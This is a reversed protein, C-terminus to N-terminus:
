PPQLYAQISPQPLQPILYYFLRRTSHHLSVPFIPSRFYTLFTPPGSVLFIVHGALSTHTGRRRMNPRCVPATLNLALHPVIAASPRLCSPKMFPAETPRGCSSARSGLARGPDREAERETETQQLFAELLRPFLLFFFSLRRLDIVRGSVLTSRYTVLGGRRWRPLAAAIM